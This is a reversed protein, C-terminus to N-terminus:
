KIGGAFIAFLLKTAFFVIGIVISIQLVDLAWLTAVSLISKHKKFFYNRSKRWLFTGKLIQPFSRWQKFSKSLHHIIQPDPTFFIKWGAKKIRYCLDVEDFWIFIREDFLGVNDLTERRLMLASGMPQDVERIENFDWWTMFHKGFLRSAPFLSDLFLANYAM